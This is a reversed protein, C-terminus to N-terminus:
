VTWKSYVIAMLRLHGEYEEFGLRLSSWELEEIQEGGPIHFDVFQIDPFIDIMNELANGSRVIQNIGLIPSKMHLAAPVFQSFYESTTLVIPEGSGNYVGWVYVSTDTGFLAIQDANFWRDTSLNITAYPSLIVGYEPHVIRSLAVFDDDKIYELIDFALMTMDAHATDEAPVDNKQNNFVSFGTFVYLANAILMGAIVGAILM